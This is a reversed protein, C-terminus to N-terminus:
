EEENRINLLCKGQQFMKEMNRAEEIEKIQQETFNIKNKLCCTNLELLCMGLIIPQSLVIKGRNTQEIM